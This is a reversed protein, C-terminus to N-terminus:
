KSLDLFEHRAFFPKTLERWRREFFIAAKLPNLGYNGLAYGDNIEVILTRGDQTVGIDM